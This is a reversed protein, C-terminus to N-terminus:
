HPKHVRKPLCGTSKWGNWGVSGRSVFGGIEWKRRWSKHVAESLEQSVIQVELVQKNAIIPVYSYQQTTSCNVCTRYGLKIRGDPIITNCKCRM